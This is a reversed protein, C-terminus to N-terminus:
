CLAFCMGAILLMLKMFPLAISWRKGRRCSLMLVNRSSRKCGWEMMYDRSRSFSRGLKMIKGSAKDIAILDGNQVKDKGLVEIMRAGLDYVTKM